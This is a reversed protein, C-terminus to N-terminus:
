IYKTSSINTTIHYTLRLLLAKTIKFQNSNLIESSNTVRLFFREVVGIEPITFSTSSM